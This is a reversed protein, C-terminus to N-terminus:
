IVKLSFSSAAGGSTSIGLSVLYKGVAVLFPSLSIGLASLGIIKLAKKTRFNKLKAILEGNESALIKLKNKAASRIIEKRAFSQEVSEFKNALSKIKKSLDKLINVAEENGKGSAKILKKEIKDAYGRLQKSKKFIRLGEELVEEEIVGKCMHRHDDLSKKTKFNKGCLKCEFYNGIRSAEDILGSKSLIENKLNM